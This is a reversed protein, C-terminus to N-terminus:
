CDERSWNNEVNQMEKREGPQKERRILNRDVKREESGDKRKDMMKVRRLKERRGNTESVLTCRLHLTM